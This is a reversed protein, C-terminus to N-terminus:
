LNLRKYPGGMVSAEINESRQESNPMPISHIGSWILLNLRMDVLQQAQWIQGENNYFQTDLVAMNEPSSSNEFDTIIQTDPSLDDQTLIHLEKKERLTKLLLMRIKDTSIFSGVVKVEGLLIQGYRDRNDVLENTSKQILEIIAISVEPDSEMESTDNIMPMAPLFMMFCGSLFPIFSFILGKIVTQKV